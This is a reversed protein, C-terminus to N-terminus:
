DKTTYNIVLNKLKSYFIVVLWVICAFVIINRIDLIYGETAQASSTPAAAVEVTFYRADTGSAYELPTDPTAVYSTNFTIPHASFYDNLADSFADYCKEYILDYDLVADTQTAGQEIQEVPQSDFEWINIVEKDNM